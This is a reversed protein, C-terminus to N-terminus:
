RSASPAPDVGLRFTYPKLDQTKAITGVMTSYIIYVYNRSGFVIYGGRHHSSHSLVDWMHQVRLGRGARGVVKLDRLSWRGLVFCRRVACLLPALEARLSGERESGTGHRDGHWQPMRWQSSASAQAAGRRGGLMRTRARAARVCVAGVGVCVCVCVCVRVPRTGVGVLVARLGHTLKNPQLTRAEQRGAGGADGEGETRARRAEREGEVRWGGRRATRHAGNPACAKPLKPWARLCGMPQGHLRGGRERRMYLGDGHM